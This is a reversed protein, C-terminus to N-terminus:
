LGHEIMRNGEKDYPVIDYPFSPNVAYWHMKHGVVRRVDRIREPHHSNFQIMKKFDITFILERITVNVTASGGQKFANSGAEIIGQLEPPYVDWPKHTESFRTRNEWQGSMKGHIFKHTIVDPFLDYPHRESGNDLSYM